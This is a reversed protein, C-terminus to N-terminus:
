ASIGAGVATATVYHFEAQVEYVAPRYFAM